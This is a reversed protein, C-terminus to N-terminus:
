APERVPQASVAEKAWEQRNGPHGRARPLLARAWVGGAQGVVKKEESRIGSMAHVATNPFEM